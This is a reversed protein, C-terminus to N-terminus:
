QERKEAKARDKAAKLDADKEGREDIARRLPHGKPYAAELDAKEQAQAKRDADRADEEAALQEAAKILSEMGAIGAETGSLVFVKQEARPRAEAWPAQMIIDMGSVKEIDMRLAMLENRMKELSSMLREKREADAFVHPALVARIRPGNAAFAAVKAAAADALRQEAAKVFSELGAVGDEEGIIVFIKQSALPTMTTRRFSRGVRSIMELRMEEIEGGARQTEKLAKDSSFLNPASVSRM